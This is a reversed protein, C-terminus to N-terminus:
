DKPDDLDKVIQVIRGVVDVDKIAMLSGTERGFLRGAQSTMELIWFENDVFCAVLNGQEYSKQKRTVLIDDTSVNYHPYDDSMKYAKVDGKVGYVSIVGINKGKSNHLAVANVENEVSSRSLNPQSGAAYALKSITSASPVHKSDKLFRTINTPSTAALQAWHNASWGKQDMVTRMWVKIARREHSEM